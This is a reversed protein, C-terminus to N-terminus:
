KWSLEFPSVWIKTESPAYAAADDRGYFVDVAVGAVTVDATNRFSINSRDLVLARDLWLRLTGDDRGPANLVVEQEVKIWRGKGLTVNDIDARVRQSEGKQTVAVAVGALGDPRWSLNAVFGDQSQQTRDVGRLGPLTGGTQFELDGHLFVDYSLCAATESQVAKPSWLFSMGGKGAAPGAGSQGNRLSVRLAAPIRGDRPKVVEVNEVLGDDRAGVRAQIDTATLFQGNRELQFAISNSYRESCPRVSSPAFVSRAAAILASVAVLVAAANFLVIKTNIKGM